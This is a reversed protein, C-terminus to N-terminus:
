RKRSWRTTISYNTTGSRPAQLHIEPQGVYLLRSASDLLAGSKELFDMGVIGDVPRGRSDRFHERVTKLPTVAVQFESVVLRGFVVHHLKAVRVPANDGSADIIKSRSAVTPIRHRRVTDSSLVTVEAGTDVVWSLSHGNWDGELILHPLRGARSLRLADFGLRESHGLPRIEGKGANRATRGPVWLHGDSLDILAGLGDLADLGIQGDYRSTATHRETQPALMFPFPAATVQGATLSGIGVQSTVPRGLAGRSVVSLSRDPVIGLKTALKSDLDTSNAGSDILLQVPQGNVLFRGSYRSDGSTKQLPLASYGLQRLQSTRVTSSVGRPSACSALLVACALPLLLLISRM